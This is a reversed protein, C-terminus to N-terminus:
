PLRTNCFNGASSRALAMKVKASRNILLCAYMNSALSFSMAMAVLSPVAAGKILRNDNVGAFSLLRAVPLTETMTDFAEAALLLAILFESIANSPSFDLM